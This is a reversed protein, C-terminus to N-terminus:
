LLADFQSKLANFKASLGALDPQAMPLTRSFYGVPKWIERIDEPRLTFDSGGENKVVVEGNPANELKRLFIGKRPSVVLFRGKGTLSGHDTLLEGTIIGDPLYSDAPMDFARYTHGEERFPFGLAPLEDLRSQFDADVLYKDFYKHSVYRVASELVPEFVPQGTRSFPRKKEQPIVPPIVPEEPADEARSFLPTDDEAFRHLSLQDLSVGFISAIRSLKDLPPVARSEEYSGLAKRTIGLLEAFKEQTLGMRNRLIRINENVPSPRM